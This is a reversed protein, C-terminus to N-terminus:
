SAVAVQPTMRLPRAMPGCRAAADRRSRRVV